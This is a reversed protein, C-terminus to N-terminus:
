AKRCGNLCRSTLGQYADIRRDRLFPWAQRTEEMRAPDIDALLTEESEVAGQILLQGFPGAVFSSGWFEIRTGGMTETGVRNVAAVYVGNAIAHARQITIWADRQEAGLEEKEEPLWGIATPYALVLAGSLAALRAAEPFWQDWCILPAIPGVPTDVASFGQDGPTFYYKETFGPDDPIHMKRYVHLIEGDPGIVATSNHYVGPTRREFFPALLTVRAELATQRMASLTPGDLPEALAFHAQDMVQCFYPTAFLEPLCVLGAGQNAANLVLTAAKDLSAATDKAPAMQILALRFPQM